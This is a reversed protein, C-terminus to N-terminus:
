ATQGTKFVNELKNITANRLLSAIFAELYFGKTKYRHDNLIKNKEQAFSELNPEESAILTILCYDENQKYKLVQNKPDTLMFASKTIDKGFGKIEEDKKVMATKVHKFSKQAAVEQLTQKGQLISAKATIVAKKLMQKTRDAYYDDLVTKAVDDYKPIFSKQVELIEYLVHKEGHVFYGHKRGKLDKAFLKEKLINVMSDDSIADKSLLSSSQVKIRNKEAFKQVAQKDSKVEHLVKQMAGKLLMLSRKSKITELIESKVSALPKESAPIRQVLQLVEFGDETKIIDSIQDKKLLRFAAKEFELDYTGKDFFDLLGGKSATKADQSHKKALGAFAGPKELLQKHIDKATELIKEVETASSGIGVKLFIHRLKVKPPIRFLTSKNKEYFTEIMEDDIVM